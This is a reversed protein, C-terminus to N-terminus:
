AGLVERWTNPEPATIWPTLGLDRLVAVPKPGRALVKTRGLAAVFPGRSGEAQEVVDVLARTGVGTLLVVLDFGGRELAAAFALAEQNSDLPVERMSPAEIPEGGYTTVLAALERSRRSELLLVRRGGFSPASM